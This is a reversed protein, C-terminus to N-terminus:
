MDKEIVGLNIMTKAECRFFKNIKEIYLLILHLAIIVDVCSLINIQRVTPDDSYVLSIKGLLSLELCSIIRKM